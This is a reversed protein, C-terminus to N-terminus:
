RPIVSFLFKKRVMYWVLLILVTHTITGIWVNGYDVPISAIVLAFFVQWVFVYLSAQGLPIWLWGIVANVPKWFVTLIAYSVIAFFAIDVLRGWQLDVRQYATNYLERYMDAPFPVPTFDFRDGAWVYVLFAAYACVAVGVLV